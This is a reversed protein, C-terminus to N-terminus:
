AGIVLWQFPQPPSAHASDAHPPPRPIVQAGFLCVCYIVWMIWM